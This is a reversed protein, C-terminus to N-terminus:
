PSTVTGGFREGATFSRACARCIFFWELEPRGHVLRFDRSHRKCHPCAIGHMELELAAQRAIENRRAMEELHLREHEARKRRASRLAALRQRRWEGGERVTSDSPVRALTTLYRCLTGLALERRDLPCWREILHHRYGDTGEIQWTEGDLGHVNDTLPLTWINLEDLLRDVEARERTHLARHRSWILNQTASGAPRSLLKGTIQWGDAGRDIRILMPARFSPLALLRYTTGGRSVDLEYPERMASLIQRRVNALPWDPGYLM